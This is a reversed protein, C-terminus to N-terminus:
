LVITITKIKNEYGDIISDKEHWNIIITRSDKHNESRYFNSNVTTGRLLIM